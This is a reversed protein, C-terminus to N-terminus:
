NRGQSRWKTNLSMELEDLRFCLGIGFWSRGTKEVQTFPITM